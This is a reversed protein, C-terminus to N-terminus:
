DAGTGDTPRASHAIWRQHPAHPDRQLSPVLVSVVGYGRNQCHPEIRRRGSLHEPGNLPDTPDEYRKM